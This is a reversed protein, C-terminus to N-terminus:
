LMLKPVMQKDHQIRRQGEAGGGLCIMERRRTSGEGWQTDGRKVKQLLEPNLM